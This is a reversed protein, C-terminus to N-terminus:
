CNLFAWDGNRSFAYTIEGFLWFVSGAGLFTAVGLGTFSTAFIGLAISATLKSAEWLMGAIPGALSILLTQGCRSTALGQCNRTNISIYPSNAGSLKAALAHGMEHIFVHLYGLSATKIVSNQLLCYTIKSFTNNAFPNIDFEQYAFHIDIGYFNYKGESGLLVSSVFSM